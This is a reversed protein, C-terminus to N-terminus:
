HDFIGTAGALIKVPLNNNEPPVPCSYQNSYACYPAYCYNFDLVVSGDEEIDQIKLDMYRGTGYSEVTTSRDTFPLFLYNAYKPKLIRMSRYAVLKCKKGALKFKITGYERYKAIRETSTPMEVVKGNKIRKFGGEVRYRPDIDFFPVEVFHELSLSDLISTEPDAFTQNVSDRYLQVESRYDLQANTRSCIAMAFAFFIAFTFGSLHYGKMPM